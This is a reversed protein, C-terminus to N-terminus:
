DQEQPANAAEHELRAFLDNIVDRVLSFTFYGVMALPTTPIPASFTTVVQAAIDKLDQYVPSSVLTRLRTRRKLIDSPVQAPQREPFPTLRRQM